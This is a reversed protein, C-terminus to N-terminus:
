QLFKNKKYSIPSSKLKYVIRENNYYKIWDKLTSNLEKATKPDILFLYKAKLTSFFSEIPSNDVPSGKPSM